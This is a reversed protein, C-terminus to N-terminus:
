IKRHRHIAAGVEGPYSEIIKGLVPHFCSTEEKYYGIMWDRHGLGVYVTIVVGVCEGTQRENNWILDIEEEHMM